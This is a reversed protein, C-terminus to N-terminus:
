TAYRAAKAEHSTEPMGRREDLLNQTIRRRSNPTLRKNLILAHKPHIEM